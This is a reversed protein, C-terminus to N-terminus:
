TLLQSVSDAVRPDRLLDDPDVPFTIEKAAQHAGLGPRRSTLAVGTRWGEEPTLEAAAALYSVYSNFMQVFEAGLSEDLGLRTFATAMSERYLHIVKRAAAAFDTARTNQTGTHVQAKEQASLVSIIDVARQFDEYLSTVTVVEPDFLIVDVPHGQTQEIREALAPVFSGGACYGMLAQVQKSTPLQAWFDLYDTAPVLSQAATPPQRTRWIERDTELLDVFHGFNAEPRGTFDFDIM